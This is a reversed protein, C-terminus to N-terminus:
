GILLKAEFKKLGTRALGYDKRGQYTALAPFLSLIEARADEDIGDISYDGPHFSETWAGDSLVVEHREFMFHIYTTRSVDVQHIGPKGIFHKAAVLVESEQFYLKAQNSAVLVKHNPSLMMDRDPLGEGLSGAKVFVPKHSPRQILEMGSMKKHGVWAIEQLGNDRTIVRDGAKLNEVLCLGKATAISTGPTFCPIVNEINTFTLTDVVNGALDKYEVTGNEGNVPDYVINIEQDPDASGTLDLTDFDDGAEGGDVVDGANVNIFTDRDGDGSLDDNGIGGDIIDNGDGGSTTDDGQGGILSDDGAGGFLSDDDIGGDITDNGADGYLVDDDDAGTILDNGEGGLVTDQGNDPRLDPGLSNSGDDEINAFDLGLDPDNGAHITDDGTGGYIVDNGEGGVIRDDGDDGSIVDADIGGDIVDNGSGGSITDADDGTNITDNGGGGYVSDRDDEAGPTGEEGPFLGPYGMDAVNDGGATDIVDDGTGGFVTDSGDGSHITDNGGGAEIVDDDEDAVNSSFVNDGNDVMDNGVDGTYASNILDADETGSVIGDRVFVTIEATDSAGDPDEITYTITAEGEFDAAPTFEIQNGVIVVAGQETPVTADSISLIDGDVDTDNVLPDITIVNGVVVEGADDDAAVPADNVPAVTVTATGTAENGDPDEVTYTIEVDGNFDADPTFTLTGDPNVVVTGNPTTAGTVTLPDGNPDTDNGLVGIIVSGDEDVNATDPNAVPAGDMFPNCMGNVPALIEITPDLRAEYIVNEINTFTLTEGTDTYTVVGNQDNDADYAITHNSPTLGLGLNLTDGGSGGDIVDGANGYIYDDGAGTNVVDSGTGSDIRDDGAGTTLTDDGSGSTIDFNEIGTYTVAGMGSMTGAYGASATGAPVSTIVNSTADSYDVVLTDIGTGGAIVDAGGTILILDDGGGTAITDTDVGSVITDDGGGTTLTNAGDGGDIYNGGGTAVITDVDAGGFIVNQGSTAAIANAGDGASIVNNGGTVTITDVEDGTCIVNDGSTAVITNAGAGAVIWNNGSTVTITDAGDDTVIIKDGALGTITNAGSGALITDSGGGVVITDVGTGTEIFNNGGTTTITSAGNGTLMTDNGSGSTIIEVGDGTIIQNNGGGAVITNAGNGAITIIDGPAVLPDVYGPALTITDGPSAAAMAAAVTPYDPLPGVTLNAM